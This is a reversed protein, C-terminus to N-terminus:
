SPRLIAATPRDERRALERYIHVAANLQKIEERLIAREACLQRILSTTRDAPFRRCTATRHTRARM